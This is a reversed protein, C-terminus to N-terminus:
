KIDKLEERMRKLFPQIEKGNKGTIRILAKNFRQNVANLKEKKETQELGEAKAVKITKMYDMFYTTRTELLKAKAVADLKFEVAAADVFYNIGKMQLKQQGYTATFAVLLVLTLIIKKM